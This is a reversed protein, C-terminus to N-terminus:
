IGMRVLLSFCSFSSCLFFQERAGLQINEGHVGVKEGDIKLALTYGGPGCEGDMMCYIYSLYGDVRLYYPGSSAGSCFM